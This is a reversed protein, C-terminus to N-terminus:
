DNAGGRFLPHYFEPAPFYSPATAIIRTLIQGSKAQMEVGEWSVLQRGIGM